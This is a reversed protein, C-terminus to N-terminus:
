RRQTSRKKHHRRGKKTARRRRRGGGLGTNIWQAIYDSTKNIRTVYNEDVDRFEKIKKALGTLEESVYLDSNTLLYAEIPEWDNLIESRLDPQESAHIEKLRNFLKKVAAEM